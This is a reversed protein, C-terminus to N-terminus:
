QQLLLSSYILFKRMSEKEHVHWHKGVMLIKCKDARYPCQIGDLLSALFSTWNSLIAHSLWPFAHQWYAKTIYEYMCDNYQGKDFYLIVCIGAWRVVGNLENVYVNEIHSMPNSSFSFWKLISGDLNIIAM